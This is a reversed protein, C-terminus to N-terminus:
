KINEKLWTRDDLLCKNQEDYFGEREVVWFADFNQEDLAKKIEKWDLNSEQAGMKCQVDMDPGGEGQMKSIDELIKQREEIPLEAVKTFHAWQNDQEANRSAPVGGPGIVKSNEKVHVSLIRNKYKRIFSPPYIGGYMAWGCDLQVFCKSSNDLLHELLSKGEDFYFEWHHNHYGVKIGYPEAMEAMADLQRAVEIAEAKSCFPTGPWIVAKGGLAAMAKIIDETPEAHISTVELGTEGLWKKIDGIDNMLDTPLLEVSDFGLSESTKFKELLSPGLGLYTAIGGFTYTGIGIKMSIGGQKREEIEKKIQPLKKSLTYTLTILVGLAGLISGLGSYLFQIADIASDSQMAISGNYGGWDLIFGLLMSGLGLGVKDAMGNLSAYIGEFKTKSKWEGYTMCEILTIPRLSNVYIVGIISISSCIVLWVLNLPMLYKLFTGISLMAFGIIMTKQTGLKGSVKPLFVILLMAFITFLSPITAVAVDGFFYKFYYTNAAGISNNMALILSIGAVSFAYPNQFLAKVSQKLSMKESPTEHTEEEGIEKLLFFRLIGGIMGPIAFISTIITWGYPVGEFISILVPISIGAIASAITMVTTSVTVVRVVVSEKFSRRLRVSEICTIMTYCISQSVNYTVFVWIIKGVEGLGNPVSFCLVVFIWLPIYMIEYPRAKGWRTKTKDVTFGAVVDTIGDFIRSILIIMGVVKATMGFDETLAFTLNSLVIFSVVGSATGFSFLWKGKIKEKKEKIVKERTM